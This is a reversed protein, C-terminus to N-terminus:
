RLKPWSIASARSDRMAAHTRQRGDDPTAIAANAKCAPTPPEIGDGGV